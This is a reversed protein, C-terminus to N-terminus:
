NQKRKERITKEKEAALQLKAIELELQKMELASKADLQQVPKADQQPPYYVPAKPGFLLHVVAMWSLKLLIIVGIIKLALRM